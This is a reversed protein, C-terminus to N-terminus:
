GTPGSWHSRIDDLLRGRVEPSLLGQDQIPVHLHKRNERPSLAAIVRDCLEDLSARRIVTGLLIQDGHLQRMGGGGQAEDRGGAGGIAVSDDQRGETTVPSEGRDDRSAASSSAVLETASGQNERGEKMEEVCESELIGARAQQRLRAQATLLYHLGISVRDVYTAAAGSDTHSLMVEIDRVVIALAKSILDTSGPLRLQGYIERSDERKMESFTRARLVPGNVDSVYLEEGNGDLKQSDRTIRIEGKRGADALSARPGGDADRKIVSMACPALAGVLCHAFHAMAEFLLLSANDGHEEEAFIDDDSLLRWRAELNEAILCLVNTAEEFVQEKLRGLNLPAGDLSSTEKVPLCHQHEKLGDGESGPATGDRQSSFELHNQFGILSARDQQDIGDLMNTLARLWAAQHAISFRQLVSTDPSRDALESSKSVLFVRMQTLCELAKKTFELGAPRRLMWSDKRRCGRRLLSTCDTKREKLSSLERLVETVRNVSALITALGHRVLAELAADALAERASADRRSSLGNDGDSSHHITNESSAISGTVGVEASRFVTGHTASEASSPDPIEDISSNWDGSQSPQVDGNEGQVEMEGRKDSSTSMRSAPSLSAQTGHSHLSDRAIGQALRRGASKRGNSPLAVVFRDSLQRLLFSAAFLQVDLCDYMEKAWEERPKDNRDSESGLLVSSDHGRAEAMGAEINSRSLPNSDTLSPGHSLSRRDDEGNRFTWSHESGTDQFAGAFHVASAQAHLIHIIQDCPLSSPFQTILCTSFISLLRPFASATSLSSCLSGPLHRVMSNGDQHTSPEWHQVGDTENLFCGKKDGDDKSVEKMGIKECTSSDQTIHHFYGYLLRLRSGMCRQLSLVLSAPISIHRFESPVPSTHSDSSSSPSTCSSLGTSSSVRSLSSRHKKLYSYNGLELSAYDEYIGAGGRVSGGGPIEGVTEPPYTSSQPVTSVSPLRPGPLSLHWRLLSSCSTTSSSSHMALSKVLSLVSDLYEGTYSRDHFMGKSHREPYGESGTRWGTLTSGSSLSQLLPTFSSSPLLILQKRLTELLSSFEGSYTFPDCASTEERYHSTSLSGYYTFNLPSRSLDPSHCHRPNSSFVSASPLSEERTEGEAKTTAKTAQTFLEVEKAKCSQQDKGLSSQLLSSPPLLPLSSPFLLSSVPPLPLVSLPISSITSPSLLHLHLPVLLGGHGRFCLPYLSVRLLVLSQLVGGTGATALSSCLDSVVSRFLDRLFGSQPHNRLQDDRSSHFSSAHVLFLVRDSHPLHLIEQHFKPHDESIAQVLQRALTGLFIKTPDGSDFDGSLQDEDIRGGLISSVKKRMRRRTASDLDEEIDDCSYEGGEVECTTEATSSTYISYMCADLLTRLYPQIEAVLSAPSPKSPVADPSKRQPASSSSPPGTITAPTFTYLSQLNPQGLSQLHDVAHMMLVTLVGSIRPGLLSFTRALRALDSLSLFPMHPLLNDGLREWLPQQTLTLHCRNLWSLHSNLKELDEGKEGHSEQERNSGTSITIELGEKTGSSFSPSGDSLQRPLGRERRGVTYTSSSMMLRHTFLNQSAITNVHIAMVHSTLIDIVKLLSPGDFSFSIRKLRSTLQNWYPLVSHFPLICSSASSSLLCPISFFPSAASAPHSEDLTKGSTKEFSIDTQHRHNRMYKNPHLSLEPYQLAFLLQHTNLIAIPKWQQISPIFVKFQKGRLSSSSTSWTDEDEVDHLSLINGPGTEDSSGSLDGCFSSLINPTDRRGQHARLSSCAYGRGSQQDRWEADADDERTWQYRWDEKGHTFFRSLPPPPPVCPFQRLATTLPEPQQAPLAVGDGDFKTLHDFYTVPPPPISKLDFRIKKENDDESIDTKVEECRRGRSAVEDTAVGQDRRSPLQFRKGEDADRRLDADDRILRRRSRRTTQRGRSAPRNAETASRHQTITHKEETTAEAQKASLPGDAAPVSNKRSGVGTVYEPSIRSASSPSTKREELSPPAFTQRHFHVSTSSRNTYAHIHWGLEDHTQKRKVEAQWADKDLDVRQFRELYPPQSYEEPKADKRKRTFKRAFKNGIGASSSEGEYDSDEEDVRERSKNASSFSAFPAHSLCRFSSHCNTVFPFHPRHCVCYASCRRLSLCLSSSLPRPPLCSTHLCDIRRPSFRYLSKNATLGHCSPPKSASPYQVVGEGVRPLRCRYPSLMQKNTTSREHQYPSVSSPQIYASPFSRTRYSCSIPVWIQCNLACISQRVHVKQLCSFSVRLRYRACQSLSRLPRELALSRVIADLTASPM